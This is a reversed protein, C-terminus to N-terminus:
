AVKPDRSVAASPLGFQNEEPDGPLCGLAVVFGLSILYLLGVLALAGSPSGVEFLTALGGAVVCVVLLALLWWGSRGMDHLRRIENNIGILAAAFAFPVLFIGLHDDSLATAVLRLLVGLM